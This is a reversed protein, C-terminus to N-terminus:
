LRTSKRDQDVEVRGVKQAVKLAKRQLNDNRTGIAILAMNMLHRVRNDRAQIDREITKLYPEFYADPLQHNAAALALMSWGASAVWESKADTWKELKKLAAPAQAALRAFADTIVGNRLSKAWEELLGASMSEPDAIMTALVRADHNGTAWLQTALGHDTKIRKKLAGLTAYSVGFLDGQVGHRRYTKRTQESGAAELQDMVEDFDM